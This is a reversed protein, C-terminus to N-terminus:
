ESNRPSSRRGSAAAGSPLRRTCSRKACISTPSTRCASRGYSRPSGQGFAISFAM